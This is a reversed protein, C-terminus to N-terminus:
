RAQDFPRHRHLVPPARAHNSPRNGNGDADPEQHGGCQRRRRDRTALFVEPFWYELTPM